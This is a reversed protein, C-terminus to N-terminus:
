QNYVEEELAKIRRGLSEITDVLKCLTKFVEDNEADQMGKHSM